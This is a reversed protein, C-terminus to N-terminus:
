IRASRPKVAKFYIGGRFAPIQLYRGARDVVRLLLALAPNVDGAPVFTWNGSESLQLGCDSMHESILPLTVYLDSSLHRTDLGLVPAWHRYWISDGNPTLCVFIGGSQLIRRIQFLVGRKDIMHEFAGVCLVVDISKDCISSLCEARDVALSFKHRDKRSELTANAMEIMGPSIDTGIVRTFQDALAFLHIGTGCGIELLSESNAGAILPRIIALRYQLLKEPPGHLDRYDRATEDFFQTLEENGRVTRTILRSM